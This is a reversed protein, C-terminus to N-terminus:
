KIAQLKKWFNQMAAPISKIIEMPSIVEETNTCCSIHGAAVLFIIALHIMGMAGSSAFTITGLASWWMWCWQHKPIKNLYDKKLIRYMGEFAYAVGLWSVVALIIILLVANM